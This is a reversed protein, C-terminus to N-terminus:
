DHVSNKQRQYIVLNEYHDTPRRVNQVHRWQGAEPSSEFASQSRMGVVLWQCAMDGKLDIDMQGHYQLAALQAQSLGQVQVCDPHGMLVAVNRVLPAYSRAYDLMPMWLTMLLLWCLTAGSAPM